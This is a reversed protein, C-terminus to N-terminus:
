RQSRLAFRLQFPHALAADAVEAVGHNPGIAARSARRDGRVAVRACWELAEDDLPGAVRDNAVQGARFQNTVIQGTAIQDTVASTSAAASRAQAPRPRRGRDRSAAVECVAGPDRGLD